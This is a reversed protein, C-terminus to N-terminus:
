KPLDPVFPLEYFLVLKYLKVPKIYVAEHVRLLVHSFAKRLQLLSM